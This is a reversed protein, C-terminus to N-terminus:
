DGLGTYCKSMQTEGTSFYNHELLIPRNVIKDRVRLALVLGDLHHSGQWQSILTVEFMRLLFICTLM